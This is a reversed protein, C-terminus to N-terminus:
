TTAYMSYCVCITCLGEKCVCIVCRCVCVEHFYGKFEQILEGADRPTMGLDVALTHHTQGYIIGYAVRKAQDRTIVTHTQYFLTHTHTSPPSLRPFVQSVHKIPNGLSSVAIYDFGHNAWAIYIHTHNLYVSLFCMHCFLCFIRVYWPWQCGAM